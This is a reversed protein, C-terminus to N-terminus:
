GAMEVVDSHLHIFKPLVVIDLYGSIEREGWYRILHMIYAPHHGGVSLDFLLIRRNRNFQESNLILEINKNSTSM